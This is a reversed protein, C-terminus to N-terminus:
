FTGAGNGGHADVLLDWNFAPDNRSIVSDPWIGEIDKNM